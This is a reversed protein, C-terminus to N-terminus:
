PKRFTKLLRRLNAIDGVAKIVDPEQMNDLNRNNEPGEILICMVDSLEELMQYLMINDHEQLGRIELLFDQSLLVGDVNLV